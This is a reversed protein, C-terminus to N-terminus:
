MDGEPLKFYTRSDEGDDRGSRRHYSSKRARRQARSPLIDGVATRVDAHLGQDFSIDGTANSRHFPIRRAALTMLVTRQESNRLPVFTTDSFSFPTM